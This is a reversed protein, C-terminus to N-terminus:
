MKRLICINIPWLEKRTNKIEQKAQQNNASYAKNSEVKFSKRSRSM